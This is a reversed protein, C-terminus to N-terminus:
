LSLGREAVWKHLVVLLWIRNYLLREGSRFRERLRLVETPDVLGLKPVLHPDLYENELNQVVDGWWSLLPLDLGLKPRRVLREPLHRGLEKKLLAKLQGGRIKHRPDINLAFRILDTSLLPVRAELGFRMSARDVKVLLGDPLSYKLDFIAQLEEPQLSRIRTNVAESLAPKARHMLLKDVDAASFTYQEQSFIHQRLTSLGPADVVMAARRHRSNGLRLLAAWYKRPYWLWPWAMRRAWNYTGYGLFLEDGGEGTLAVTALRKTERCLLLTPAASSDAFPEDYLNTVQPILALAEQKGFNFEHHDTGLHEAIERAYRGENFQYNDISVTCTTLRQTMQQQAIATVLTSDVGGSLLSCIPVDAVLQQRVSDTLLGRLQTEIQVEDRAVEKTLQQELQWYPHLEFGDQHFEAWTGPPLKKIGRYISHPAPIFGLHLFHQIAEPDLRLGISDQVAAFASLESAFVFGAQTYSYYLPKIGLEDRVLLIKRLSRDLVAFAFMGKLKGLCAAGYRKFAELLVETDSGTRPEFAMSQAIERYNYIEGNFVIVYRGCASLFPQNSAASRDIVSLRCHGFWVDNDHYIGNADPGRHSLSSMMKEILAKSMSSGAAGCIGCM